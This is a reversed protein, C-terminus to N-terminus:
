HSSRTTQSKIERSGYIHETCSLILGMAMKTLFSEPEPGGDIRTTSMTEKVITPMSGKAAFNPSKDEV